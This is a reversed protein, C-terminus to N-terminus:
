DGDLAYLYFMFFPVLYHLFMSQSTLMDVFNLVINLDTVCM